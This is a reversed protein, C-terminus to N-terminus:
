IGISVSAIKGKLIDQLEARPVRAAPDGVLMQERLPIALKNPLDERTGVMYKPWKEVEWLGFAVPEM